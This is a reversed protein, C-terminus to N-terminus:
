TRTRFRRVQRLGSGLVGATLLYLTGPEPVAVPEVDSQIFITDQQGNPYTLVEALQPTGDEVISRIAIGGPRPSGDVDSLFEWFTTGDILGGGPFLTDSTTLTVPELLAVPSEGQAFGGVAANITFDCGENNAINPWCLVNSLRGSNNDDTVTPAVADGVDHITFSSASAPTTAGLMGVVAVLVSVFMRRRNM